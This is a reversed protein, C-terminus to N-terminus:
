DATNVPVTPHKREFATRDSAITESVWAKLEPDESEVTVSLGHTIRSARVLEPPRGISQLRTLLDTDQYWVRLEPDFFEGPGHSMEDLTARSLAFCWASFDTRYWSGETLPFAVAAGGDLAERLPPWWASKPEVDDNMVVAYPTDVARLGANVPASFGQPPAGNDVLVIEHAADTTAQIASVCSRVRDSAADLTPIVITLELEEGPRARAPSIRPRAETVVADPATVIKRGSYALEICVAALEDGPEVGVVRELGAIDSRRLAVAHTCAPHSDPRLPLSAAVAANSPDSLPALLPDLAGPSIESTGRLLVVFESTSQKGARAACAVLGERRENRLVKIEGPLDDLLSDLGPTADNVLIVDRATQSDLAALAALCSDMQERRGALHVVITVHTAMAAFRLARGHGIRNSCIM